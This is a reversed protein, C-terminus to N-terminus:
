IILALIYMCVSGRGAVCPRMRRVEKLRCLAEVLWLNYTNYVYDIYIKLKSRECNGTTYNGQQMPHRETPCQVVCSTANSTCNANIQCFRGLPCSRQAASTEIHVLLLWVLSVCVFSGAAM